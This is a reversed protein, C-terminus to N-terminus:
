LQAKQKVDYRVRILSPAILFNPISEWLRIFMKQDDDKMERCSFGRYISLAKSFRMFLTKGANALTRQSKEL